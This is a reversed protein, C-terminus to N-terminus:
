AAAQAAQPAFERLMAGWAACHLAQGNATSPRLSEGLARLDQGALWTIREAIAAATPGAIRLAPPVQESLGDLDAVLVPRGAARAEACVQGYAEWLSPMIIADMEALFAEPRSLAPGISVQPLDAAAARLAAEEEGYGALTLSVRGPPLLRMAELLLFLGKQPAYRGYCGLRLPGGHAVLPPVAAMPATDSTPRIVRLKAPPVLGTARLWAAQGESVAVVAHAMAFGLRLMARFRAPSRVCRREFAETYSHEVIVLRRAGLRLRLRALFALKRWALTFHVVVVDAEPLPPPAATADVLLREVRFGAGLGDVHQDLTRNIGGLGTDDILHLVHIM